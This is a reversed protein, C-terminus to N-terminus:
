WGGSAAPSFRRWLRNDVFILRLIALPTETDLRNTGVLVLCWHVLYLVGTYWHVLVGTCWHVLVGTYWHVLAGTCWHELAGTYWHVLTGTSWHVTCWRVM